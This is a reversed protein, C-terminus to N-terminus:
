DIECITKLIRAAVTYPDANAGPRRDELYGYGKKSVQLPIRISAERDSVGHKFQDIACTEHLGTLREAIGHGYVLIHENHNKKLLSIAKEIAKAGKSVNRMSNTSFNTHQGAGNWNGKVPKPDLTASIGFEEGLRYLLWRAMWVHDGVTLPDPSEGLVNRPGIQFEWQGPMVEANIGYIMIGAKVCAETHREVLERGFVEDSGVGCFFPGQPAPYGKDPWGLPVREKFLTYEQEVGFWPDEKSAGKDLVRRLKARTNTPHPEGNSDLVECMILFDGEGRLPDKVFKIPELYLDSDRGVSQYTSSGDFSWQPFSKLTVKEINEIEIVRAKSRLKQTPTAGDIWIYENITLMKGGNM